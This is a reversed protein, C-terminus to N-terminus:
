AFRPAVFVVLILCGAAVMAFRNLREGLGLAQFARQGLKSRPRWGCRRDDNAPVPAALNGQHGAGMGPHDLILKKKGGQEVPRSAPRPRGSNAQAREIDGAGRPSVGQRGGIATRDPREVGQPRVPNSAHADSPRDSLRQADERLRLYGAEIDAYSAM